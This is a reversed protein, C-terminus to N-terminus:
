LMQLTLTPSECYWVMGSPVAHSFWAQDPSM